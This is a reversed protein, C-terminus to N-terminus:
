KENKEGLIDYIYQFMRLVSQKRVADRDGRFFETYTAVKGNHYIGFCVQGVPKKDSGGEPGAIGTVSICIDSKSISHTGIAMERATEESVAGFNELTEKSVGLIKMKMENSYTILSTKFIESVGPYDTITKAFMGGTCSESSSLTLSKEKLKEVVVEEIPISDTSYIYEGIRSKLVEIMNMVSEKAKDLSKSKSTVRLYVEGTGVYPAITPDKQGDVLDIIKDELASEGIGRTRVFSYYIHDDCIDRIYTVVEELFMPKLERPPGPLTIIHKKIGDLEFSNIMGPATGNNNKLIKAGKTFYCQRLNNETMKRNLKKFRSELWSKVETSIVMEKDIAKSVGEKTIDDRTPGLGGTTIILDCSQLLHRINEEIRNLNDGVTSHFMVDIGLNNLERSLYSANTNEIQGFLIETGVTLIGAKM